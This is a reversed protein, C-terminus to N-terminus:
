IPLFLFLLLAIAVIIALSIAIGTIAKAKIENEISFNFAKELSVIRVSYDSIQKSNEDIAIEFKRIKEQRLSKSKEIQELAELKELLALNTKAQQM